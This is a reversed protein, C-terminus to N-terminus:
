YVMINIAATCTTVQNRTAPRCSESLPIDYASLVGSNMGSVPMFTENRDHMVSKSSQQESSSCCPDQLNGFPVSTPLPAFPPLKKITLPSMTILSFLLTLAVVNSPPCYQQSAGVISPFEVIQAM